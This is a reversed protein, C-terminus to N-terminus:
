VRSMTAPPMGDARVQTIRTELDDVFEKLAKLTEDTWGAGKIEDFRAQLETASDIADLLVQIASLGYTVNQVESLITAISTNDPEDLNTIQTQTSDHEAVLTTEMTARNTEHTDLTSEKAVTAELVTNLIAGTDEFVKTATQDIIQVAIRNAQMEAASLLVKMWAGNITPLTAINTFAAGDESIKIDGTELTVGAVFDTAGYTILPLDFTKSVGWECAVLEM